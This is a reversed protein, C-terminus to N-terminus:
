IFHKKMEAEIEKIEVTGSNDTDLRDFIYIIEEKRLNECIMTIFKTFQPLSLQDKLQMTELLLGVDINKRDIEQRLATMLMKLKDEIEANENMLYDFM